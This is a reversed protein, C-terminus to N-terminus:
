KFYHSVKSVLFRTTGPIKFLIERADRGIGYFFRVLNSVGYRAVIEVSQPVFETIQKELHHEVSLHGFFIACEIEFIHGSGNAVFHNPAVWM